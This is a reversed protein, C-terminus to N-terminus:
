NEPTELLCRVTDNNAAVSCARITARRVSGLAPVCGRIRPKSREPRGASRAAKPLPAPNDSKANLYAILDARESGRPM